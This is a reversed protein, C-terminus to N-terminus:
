KKYYSIKQDSGSGSSKIPDPDLLLNPEPHAVSDTAGWPVITDLVYFSSKKMKESTNEKGISSGEGLGGGRHRCM